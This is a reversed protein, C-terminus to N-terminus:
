YTSYLLTLALSSLAFLSSVSLIYTPVFYVWFSRNKLGANIPPMSRCMCVALTKIHRRGGEILLLQSFLVCESPISSLCFLQLSIAIAM